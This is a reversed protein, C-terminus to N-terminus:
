SQGYFPSEYLNISLAWVMWRCVGPCAIKSKAMGILIGFSFLIVSSVKASICVNGM